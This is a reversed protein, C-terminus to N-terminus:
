RRPEDVHRVSAHNNASLFKSLIRLRDERSMSDFRFGVMTKGCMPIIQSHSLVFDM